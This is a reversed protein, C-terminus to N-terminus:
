LVQRLADALRYLAVPAVATYVCGWCLVMRRLFDGRRAHTRPLVLALDCFGKYLARLGFLGVVFPLATGTLIVMDARQVLGVTAALIVAAYFPAVGLLLVAATAQARLAQATVLRFSADLGSLQTYFYFSPLCVCLAGVFALVFSVPMWLVPHGRDGAFLGVGLVEAAFGVVLGHIGLGLLSLTLLKQLVAPLARENGLIETLHAQGRLILDFMSGDSPAAPPDLSASALERPLAENMTQTPAM